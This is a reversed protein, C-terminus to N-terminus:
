YSIVQTKPRQLGTMMAQRECLQSTTNTSGGPSNALLKARAERCQKDLALSSKKLEIDADIRHLKQQLMHLAHLAQKLKDELVQTTADLQKVEDTLGYQVNDRCLEVNPRYTRNELRTQALKMPNIKARIASELRRIEEELEGIEEETQQKQWNLEDLAREFDHIRKRLAYDVAAQQAALDNDTQQIVHHNAERLARSRNMESEAREKNYRSYDEWQQPTTSGKPVRTPDPKYSINPSDETLNYQEIDIDLAINKDQLDALIQQRAEQLRCIQEFSEDIQRQLQGKVAEIVQQEKKLQDEVEDEVVDIDRRGERIVLNEVNVETPLNKAELSDELVDKSESLNAIERDLDSLTRELIDKWKRIHEVRDALRTNNDHQDWKTKNATENRMFVAEQRTGHSAERQREANTAITYNSTFWDSTAYRSVGAPVYSAM